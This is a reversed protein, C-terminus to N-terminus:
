GGSRLLWAHLIYAGQDQGVQDSPLVRYSAEVLIQVVGTVTKVLTVAGVPVTQDGGGQAVDVPLRQLDETPGSRQSLRVGPAFDVTIASSSNLWVEGVLPAGDTSVVLQRNAGAPTTRDSFDLRGSATLEPLATLQKPLRYVIRVVRRDDTTLEM